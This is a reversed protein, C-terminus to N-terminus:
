WLGPDDDWSPSEDDNLPQDWEIKDDEPPELDPKWHSHDQKFVLEFSKSYQIHNIIKENNFTFIIQRDEPMRENVPIWRTKERLAALEAEAAKAHANAKGLQERMVGIVTMSNMAAEYARNYIAIVAAQNKVYHEITARVPKMLRDVVPDGEM